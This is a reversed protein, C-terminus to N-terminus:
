SKLYSLIKELNDVVIFSKDELEANDDKNSIVWINGASPWSLACGPSVWAPTAPTQAAAAM